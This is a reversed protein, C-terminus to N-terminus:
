FSTKEHFVQPRHPWISRSFFKVWFYACASLKLAESLEAVFDVDVGQNWPNWGQSQIEVGEPNFVKL